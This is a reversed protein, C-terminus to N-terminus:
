IKEKYVKDQSAVSAIRDEKMSKLFALDEEKASIDRLKDKIILNEANRDAIMFTEGIRKKFEEVQQREKASLSSQSLRSRKKNMVQWDKLVEKIQARIAQDSKLPIGTKSWGGYYKSFAVGCVDDGKGGSLCGKVKCSAEVTGSVLPCSLLSDWSSSQNNELGKRWHLFRILDGKTLPKTITLPRSGQQGLLFVETEARTDRSKKKPPM